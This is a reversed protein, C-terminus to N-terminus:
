SLVVLSRSQCQLSGPRDSVIMRDKWLQKAAQHSVVSFPSREVTEVLVEFPTAFSRGDNRQDVERVKIILDLLRRCLEFKNSRNFVHDKGPLAKPISTHLFIRQASIRVTCGGIQACEDKLTRRGM